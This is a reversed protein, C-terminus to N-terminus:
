QPATADLASQSAAGGVLRRDDDKGPDSFLRLQGPRRKLNECLRPHAMCVDLWTGSLRLPVPQRERPMTRGSAGGGAGKRSWTRQRGSVVSPALRVIRPPAQEEVVTRPIKAAIPELTRIQAATQRDIVPSLRLTKAKVLVPAVALSQQPIHVMSRTMQVEYAQITEVDAEVRVPTSSLPLLSSQSHLNGGVASVGIPINQQIRVFVRAQGMAELPAMVGVLIAMTIVAYVRHCDM